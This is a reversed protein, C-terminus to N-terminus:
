PLHAPNCLAPLLCLLPYCPLQSVERVYLDELSIINIHQGMHRMLRIERLVHKADYIHKAMPTIKKIAVKKGLKQCAASVVVGYSGKGLIKLDSYGYSADLSFQTGSVLVTTEKNRSSRM